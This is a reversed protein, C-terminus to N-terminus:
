APAAHASDTPSTAPSCSSPVTSVPESCVVPKLGVFDIPGDCVLCRHNVTRIKDELFHLMRFLFNGKAELAEECRWSISLHSLTSVQSHARALSPQGEPIAASLPDEMASLDTGKGQMMSALQDELERKRKGADSLIEFAEQVRNGCKGLALEALERSDHPWMEM